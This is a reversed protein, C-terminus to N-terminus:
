CAGTPELKLIARLFAGWVDYPAIYPDAASPWGTWCRANYTWVHREEAIVVEPMDRLWIDAAQRVLEVYAPDDASPQLAEMQDLIADYEPNSYRTNAWRYKTPEGIPSSYKTHFHSFTPYPEQAAGCHPDLWILETGNQVLTVTQGTEDHKAIADFGADVLQQAVAPGLPRLGGRTSITLTVRKGDAGLWYGEGDQTYGAATMREAVKDLSFDDPKYQDIIDQIKEQYKLVGGFSSLPLVMPETSNEYALQVLKARDLAHNVAWRVNVNDFPPIANNLGMIYSCADATGWTPGEANWSVLDPNRDRAAEFDGKQLAGGFDVESQSFLRAIAAADGGAIRIVREVKPLEAFGVTAAWWNDRRDFVHQQETARVLRFPGTGVPWGKALDFNTFTEPDQDQWIHKPLIALNIESNEALFSFVWRPNPKNLIIKATLEDVVEVDKVWEQMQTSFVLTAKDRVTELTFEIDNATFPQGDSWQVGDRLKITIETFDANYEYGTALWPTIEGDNHNYYFLFEYITKNLTDRVRGLGGLAYPNMQQFDAITTGARALILTKGREITRAASEEASLNATSAAEGSGAAEGGGAPAAPVCAAVALLVLIAAVTASIKRYWQMRKM